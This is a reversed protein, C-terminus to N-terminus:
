WALITNEEIFSESRHVRRQHKQPSEKEYVTFGGM